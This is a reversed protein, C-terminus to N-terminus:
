ERRDIFFGGGYNAAGFPDDYQRTVKRAFNLDAIRGEIDSYLKRALRAAEEDHKKIELLKERVEQKFSEVGEGMGTWEEKIKADLKESREMLQRRKEALELLASVDEARLAEKMKLTLALIEDLNKIKESFAEMCGDREM